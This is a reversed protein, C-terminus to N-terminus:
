LVYKLTACSVKELKHMSAAPCTRKPLLAGEKAKSIRRLVGILMKEQELQVPRQVSEQAIDLFSIQAHLGVGSSSSCINLSNFAANLGATTEASPEGSDYLMIRVLLNM